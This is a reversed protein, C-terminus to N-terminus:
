TEETAEITGFATTVKFSVTLRRTAASFSVSLYNITEVDEVAIIAERFAARARLESFKGGLLAETESVVDNALYPIGFRRNLFWEGRIIQLVIWLEQATAELGRQTLRIDGTALDLDGDADLAFDRGPQYSATGATASTHTPDPVLIWSSTPHSM